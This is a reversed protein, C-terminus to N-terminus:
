QYVTVPLLFSSNGNGVTTATGSDPQFKVLLKSDEKAKTPYEGLLFGTTKDNSSARLRETRQEAVVITETETANALVLRVTGNVNSAGTSQLNIYCVERTDTGGSTNGIGFTVKQGASVQVEGLTTYINPQATLTTTWGFDSETYIRPFRQTM